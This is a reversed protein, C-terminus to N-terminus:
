ETPDLLADLERCRRWVEQRVALPLDVWRVRAGRLHPVPADRDSWASHSGNIWVVLSVGDTFHIAFRDAGLGNDTASQFRGDAHRPTRDPNPATMPAM